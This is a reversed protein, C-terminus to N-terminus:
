KLYNEVFADVNKYIHPKMGIKEYEKLYLSLANDFNEANKCLNKPDFSDMLNIKEIDVGNAIDDLMFQLSASNVFSAYVDGNKAAEQVKNRWNSYMEEYTGTLNERSPEEKKDEKKLFAKAEKFISTLNEKLASLSGSEIVKLTLNKIDFPLSLSTLEEFNRKVGRKFYRGSYLMLAEFLYSVAAGSSIFAEGMSDALICEAFYKEAEFFAKPAKEFRCNSNMINKAKDRLKYLKNLYAENNENVYVIESDLLKSIHPHEYESDENLMSFTTCYIDFGIDEDELIFGESLIRGKEDNILLLLDLDSKEHTDGTLVSGYVGILALSEPCKDQAKKIIANIIKNQTANM